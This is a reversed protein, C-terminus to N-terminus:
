AAQLLIKATRGCSWELTPARDTAARVSPIGAGSLRSSM